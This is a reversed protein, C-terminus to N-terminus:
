SSPRNAAVSPLRCPVACTPLREKGNRLVTLAKVKGAQIQTMVAAPSLVAMDVEGGFLGMLMQAGGKFPVHVIKIKALSNLLESALHPTAGIGSTGYNLKGPNAKAYEVLEKLSNVPLSSRAILLYPTEAVLSIPAFDKIPDYNLKKYLSPSIALAGPAGIVITYGDPKAKAVFECGINGGAGPRNEIVVPQGRREALKPGVIRAFVDNAGGPPWPVIFRISKNPYTQACLPAVTAGILLSVAMSAVATVIARRAAEGRGASKREPVAKGRNCSWLVKGNM